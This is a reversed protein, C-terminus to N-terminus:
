FTNLLRKKAKEFEEESLIGESRLRGIKELGELQENTLGGEHSSIGSSYGASSPSSPFPPPKPGYSPPQWQHDFGNSAFPAYGRPTRPWLAWILAILWALGTWAGFVNVLIIAAKNEHDRSLAIISPLLYLALLAVGGLVCLLIIGIGFAAVASDDDSTDAHFINGEYAIADFPHSVGSTLSVESHQVVARASPFAAQVISSHGMFLMFAAVIGVLFAGCGREHHGRGPM